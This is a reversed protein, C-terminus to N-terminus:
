EMKEISQGAAAREKADNRGTGIRPLVMCSTNGCPNKCITGNWGADHWPVRITIHQTPLQQAGKIM